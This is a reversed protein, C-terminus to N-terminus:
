RPREPYWSCLVEMVADPGNEIVHPRHSTVRVVDGASVPVREDDVRVHGSGRLFFFVEEEGHSHPTTSTGPDLVALATGRESPGPADWPLVRWFKCGYEVPMKSVDPQKLDIM